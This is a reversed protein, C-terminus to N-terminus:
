KGTNDIIGRTLERLKPTSLKDSVRAALEISGSEIANDFIELYIKDRETKNETDRAKILSESISIIEEDSLNSLPIDQSTNQAENSADRNDPKSAETMAETNSSATESANEKVIFAGTASPKMQEKNKKSEADSIKDKAATKKSKDLMDKLTDSAPKQQGLTEPKATKDKTNKVKTKEPNATKSEDSVDNQKRPAVKPAVIDFDKDDALEPTTVNPDSKAVNVAAAAATNKNAADNVDGDLEGFGYFVAAGTLGALLVGVILVRLLM